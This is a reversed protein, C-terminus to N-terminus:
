DTPNLQYQCRCHVTKKTVNMQWKNWNLVQHGSLKSLRFSFLEVKGNFRFSRDSYCYRFTKKTNNRILLLVPKEFYVWFVWSMLQGGTRTSMFRQSTVLWIRGEWLIVVNQLLHKKIETSSLYVSSIVSFYGLSFDTLIHPAPEFIAPSSMMCHESELTPMYCSPVILEMPWQAAVM